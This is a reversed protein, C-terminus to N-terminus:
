EAFRLRSDTAAWLTVRARRGDRRVINRPLLVAVISEEDLRARRSTCTLSRPDRRDITCSAPVPDGGSKLSLTLPVVPEHYAIPVSFGLALSGRALGSLDVDIIRPREVYVGDPEDAGDVHRFLPGNVPRDGQYAGIDPEAGGAPARCALAGGPRWGVTCGQGRAPSDARLRFDGAPGDEFGLDAVRIGDVPYGQARLQEPFSLHNSMDHHFVYDDIRHVGQGDTRRFSAVTQCIEDGARPACFEIANNWHRLPGSRGGDTVQARLYWSNHFIYLPQEQSNGLKLVKGVRSRACQRQPTLGGAADRDDLWDADECFRGPIDDFWGINGFVYHPGGHVGDFSFWAHVNHIRNHHIWWNVAYGEPETANDRLFYFSNDYIEVNLNRRCFIRTECVTGKIRVGNYANRVTNHRFVVGGKIDRGGFLAGNFYQASGHHSVGWPIRTWMEGGPDQTWDNGEILFHHTDGYAVVAYSSGTIITNQVTVYSADKIFVASPWCNRFALNRIVIWSVRKVKFCNILEARPLVKPRLGTVQENEVREIDEPTTKGAVQSRFDPAKPYRAGDIVTGRGTGEITIPCDESTGALDELSVPWGNPDMAFTNSSLRVVSGPKLRGRMLDAFAERLATSNRVERLRGNCSPETLSASSQSHAPAPSAVALLLVAALICCVRFQKM